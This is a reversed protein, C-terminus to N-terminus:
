TSESPHRNSSGTCYPKSSSVRKKPAAASRRQGLLSADDSMMGFSKIQRNPQGSRTQAVDLFVHPKEQARRCAHGLTKVSVPPNINVHDPLGPKPRTFDAFPKRNLMKISLTSRAAQDADLL